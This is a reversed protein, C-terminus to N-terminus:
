YYVRVKYCIKDNKEYEGYGYPIDNVFDGTYVSGNMYHYVGSGHKKDESWEGEYKEGSPWAM